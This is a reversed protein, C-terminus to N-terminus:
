HGRARETLETLCDSYDAAVHLVLQYACLGGLWVLAGAFMGAIATSDARSGPNAAASGWTTIGALALVVFGLIGFVLCANGWNRLAHARRRAAPLNAVSGGAQADGVSAVPMHPVAAGACEPCLLGVGEYDLLNPHPNGCRSCVNAM